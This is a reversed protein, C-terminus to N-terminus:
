LILWLPYCINNTLTYLDKQSFLNHNDLINKIRTHVKHQRKGYYTPEANLILSDMM